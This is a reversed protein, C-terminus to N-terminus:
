PLQDAVSKKRQITQPLAADQGGDAGDILRHLSELTQYLNARESESLMRVAHIISHHVAPPTNKPLSRGSDTLTITIIRRDGSLRRRELLGKKELRDVIGTVTSVSVMMHEAIGSMSMRGKEQLCQLCLLQPVSLAYDRALAKTHLARSRVYRHILMVIKETIDESSTRNMATTIKPLSILPSVTLASFIM